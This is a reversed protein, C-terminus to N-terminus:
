PRRRGPRGQLFPRGDCPGQDSIRSPQPWYATRGQSIVLEDWFVFGGIEDMPIELVKFIATYFRKSAELDRVVLQIHDILRGRHWTNMEM